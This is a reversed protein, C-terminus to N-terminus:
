DTSRATSWEMGRDVPRDVPISRHVNHVDTSRATSARDITRDVCPRDPAKRAQKLADNAGKTKRDRHWRGRDGRERIYLRLM